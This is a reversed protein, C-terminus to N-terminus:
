FRIKFTVLPNQLRQTSKNYDFTPSQKDVFYNEPSVNVSLHFRSKQEINGQLGLAINKRKFKQFLVQHTVLALLTPIGIVVPSEEAEVAAMIGIGVLAAGAVSLNITSGQKNTFHAGKVNRQGLWTGAIASAAPVFLLAEANSEELAATVAAFGAATSILTLSSIVNVDGKTYAYKQFQKNGIILGAVGGGVLSLGLATNDNDIGSAITSSLGVWPGLFGYHRMMEINGASINKRKQWQFAAEGLGISGISSLAFAVKGTNDSDGGIALALAAGYGLGLFKGSNSARLTTQSIGEYKKPNIAPGLLWLGSTIFPIGVAASNDIDSLVALSVGYWFGFAANTARDRPRWEFPQEEVTAVKNQFELDWLIKNRTYNDKEEESLQNYFFRLYLEYDTVYIKEQVSLSDGKSQKRKLPTYTTKNSEEWYKRATYFSQASADNSFSVVFLLVISQAVRQM